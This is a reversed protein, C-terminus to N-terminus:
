AGGQELGLLFLQQGLGLCNFISYLIMYLWSDCM